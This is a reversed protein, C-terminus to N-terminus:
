FRERRLVQVDSVCVVGQWTGLMPKIGELIADAREANTIVVVQVMHQADIPLGEDWVGDQGGGQLTPLVTYGTAGTSKILRLVRPLLPREIFLEIKKRGFTEM